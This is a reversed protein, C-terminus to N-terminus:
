SANHGYISGDASKALEWDKVLQAKIGEGLNGQANLRWPSLFFLFLFFIM